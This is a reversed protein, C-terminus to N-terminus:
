AAARRSPRVEAWALRTRRATEAAAPFDARHHAGRSEQRELAARAVLRAAVLPAAPGHRAELGDLVSLLRALGAAERSVGADRSMARRLDQLAAHPLDPAAVTRLEAPSAASEEAAMRGARAGFAAAELLANSALRNAGHVGTSACEGAAFLGPLSTRGDADAIIGGMHFHAAPAVPIPQVRPDIGAQVCAAFVAPFAAPFRDGVAARADLFAGRGAQLSAHLARAIVDRPALDGQPHDAMIRAGFADILVAGEGRLAETALPAPDRGVDIATPHFQVFEPDAVTAGALAALALGEGRLEPPNTTVAYLGGLGGTALVVAPATIEILGAASEALVGRIRGSRDQLLGRLRLGERVAVHPAARAAGVAAALVARGAGDGGVRVVRARGHAAELSARFAGSADRDFPAGLAALHDIVAAAADALQAAVGLDVLGGGAAATDRAHLAPSDGEGVAAAIGGQAWASSCAQSLPAPSLLLAARPAAALAASLGALGGGVVVPGDFHLRAAV